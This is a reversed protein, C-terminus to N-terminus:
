DLWSTLYERVLDVLDERERIAKDAMERYAESNLPIVLFDRNPADLKDQEELWQHLFDKLVETMTVDMSFLVKRFRKKEAERVEFNIRPLCGEGSMCVRVCM